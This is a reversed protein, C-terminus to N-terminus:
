TDKIARRRLFPLMRALVDDRDFFHHKLAAVAHLFVLVLLGRGLLYHVTGLADALLADKGVLGPLPVVGFYVVPFGSASSMIWGTLPLVFLLLYLAGHTLHAALKELPRMTPPLAPPPYYTRWAVRVIAFLFVTVGIWKHYSYLRLKRPSVPLGVAYTGVAFGAVVLTAILWHIAIATHTYDASGNGPELNM